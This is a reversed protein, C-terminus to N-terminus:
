RRRGNEKKDDKKQPEYKQESKQNQKVERTPRSERSVSGSKERPAPNRQQSEIRKTSREPVPRKEFSGNRNENRKQV